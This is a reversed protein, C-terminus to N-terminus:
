KNKNLYYNLLNHIPERIISGIRFGHSEAVKTLLEQYDFAVSGTFSVESTDAHKERLPIFYKEFLLNFGKIVVGRMYEEHRNEFVFESFSSLFLVPNPQRYVKDLIIKIDLPYKEEFKRHLDTPLSQTIYDQLITRGFWNASGEDALIYGWGYNNPEVKRGNYFAANSGSGIIGVFGSHDGCTALAAAKLDHGVFVKGFRFFANFAKSVIEENEASSAGAGFFYIRKIKEAYNILTNNTHLLQEIKNANNHHPNIGMTKFGAIVKGKDALRWDALRSGSYVVAIM